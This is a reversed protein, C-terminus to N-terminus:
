SLPKDNYLEKLMNTLQIISMGKGANIKEIKGNIGIVNFGIASIEFTDNKNIKFQVVLSAQKFKKEWGMQKIYKNTFIGNIEVIKRGNSTEFDQWETSSFYSYRDFAEGVTLSKDFNLTGNKVIGVDSCGTMFVSLLLGVFFLKMKRM